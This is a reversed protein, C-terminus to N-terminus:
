VVLARCQDSHFEPAGDAFALAWYRNIGDADEIIANLAVNAPTLLESQIYAVIRLEAASVAVDIEVEAPANRMGQRVDDFDYCAWRTSPSLNFERYCTGGLPQWFIEFCTTRWLDDFRGRDPEIMPVKIAAIDGRAMFEARCGAATAEVTAEIQHISGEASHPHLVLAHV